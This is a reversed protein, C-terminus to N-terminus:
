GSQLNCIGLNRRKEPSGQLAVDVWLLGIDTEVAAAVVFGSNTRVVLAMLLGSDTGVAVVSDVNTAWVEVWPMSSGVGRLELLTATSEALGAQALHNSGAAGTTASQHGDCKLQFAYASEFKPLPHM